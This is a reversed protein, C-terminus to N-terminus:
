EYRLATTPSVRAARASPILGALLAVTALLAVAAIVTVPDTPQVGYL